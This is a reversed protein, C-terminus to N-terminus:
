STGRLPANVPMPSPAPVEGTNWDYSFGGLLSTGPFPIKLLKGPQAGPDLFNVSFGVKRSGRSLVRFKCNHVPEYCSQSQSGRNATELNKMLQPCTCHTSQSRFPAKSIYPRRRRLPPPAARTRNSTGWDRSAQMDGPHPVYDLSFLTAECNQNKIHQEPFAPARLRASKNRGFSLPADEFCRRRGDAHKPLIAPRNKIPDPKKPKRPWHAHPPKIPKDALHLLSLCTGTFPIRPLKM